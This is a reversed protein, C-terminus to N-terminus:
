NDWLQEIEGIGPKEATAVQLCQHAIISASLQRVKRCLTQFDIQAVAIAQQNM